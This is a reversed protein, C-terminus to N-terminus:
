RGSGCCLWVRESETRIHIAHGKFYEELPEIWVLIETTLVPRILTEKGSDTSVWKQLIVNDCSCLPLDVITLSCVIVMHCVTMKGKDRFKSCLFGPVSIKNYDDNSSAFNRVSVGLTNSCLVAEM